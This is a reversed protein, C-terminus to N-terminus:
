KDPDFNETLKVAGFLCKRLRFDANLDLSWIDLIYVVFVNIINGHAFSAKDEKVCNGLFKM